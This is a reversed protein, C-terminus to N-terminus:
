PGHSVWSSAVTRWVPVEALGCRKTLGGSGPTRAPEPDAAWVQRGQVHVEAGHTDGGAWDCASYIGHPRPLQPGLHGSPRSPRWRHHPHWQSLNSMRPVARQQGQVEASDIGEGASDRIGPRQALLHSLGWLPAPRQPWPPRPGPQPRGCLHPSQPRRQPRRPMRTAASQTPVRGARQTSQPGSLNAVSLNTHQQQQQDGVRGAQATARSTM